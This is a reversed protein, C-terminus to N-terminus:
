ASRAVVEDAKALTEHLLEWGPRALNRTSLKQLLEQRQAPTLALCEGLDTPFLRAPLADLPMRRQVALWILRESEELQFVYDIIRKLHEGRVGDPGQQSQRHQAKEQRTQERRAAAQAQREKERIGRLRKEELEFCYEQWTKANTARGFPVQPHYSRSATWAILKEYRNFSLSGRLDQFLEILPDKNSAPWGFCAGALVCGRILEEIHPNSPLFAKRWFKSVGRRYPQGPCRFYPHEKLAAVIDPTLDSPTLEDRKGIRSLADYAIRDSYAPQDPIALRKSIRDRLLEGFLRDCEESDTTLTGDDDDDFGIPM